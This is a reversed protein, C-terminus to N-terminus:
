LPISNMMAPFRLRTAPDPLQSSWAWLCSTSLSFPRHISNMFGLPLDVLFTREGALNRKRFTGYGRWVSGNVPSWTNLYLLGLSATRMWAVMGTTEAWVEKREGLKGKKKGKDREGEKQEWKEGRKKKYGEDKELRRGRQPAGKCWWPLSVNVIEGIFTMLTILPTLQYVQNSQKIILSVLRGTWSQCKNIIM